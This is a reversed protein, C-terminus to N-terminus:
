STGPVSVDYRIYGFVESAVGAASTNEIRIEVRVKLLYWCLFIM